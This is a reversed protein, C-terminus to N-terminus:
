PGHVVVRQVFHIECCQAHAGPLMATSTGTCAALPPRGLAWCDPERHNFRVICCSFALLELEKAGSAHRLNSFASHRCFPGPCPLSRFQWNKMCALCELVGQTCRLELCANIAFCFTVHHPRALLRPGCGLFNRIIESKLAHLRLLAHVLIGRV